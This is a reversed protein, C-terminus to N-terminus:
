PVQEFSFSKYFHIHFFSFGPIIYGIKTDIVISVHQQGDTIEGSALSLIADEPGKSDMM